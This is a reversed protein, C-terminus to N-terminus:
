PNGRPQLEPSEGEPQLAALIADARKELEEQILQRCVEWPPGGPEGIRTLLKVSAAQLCAILSQRAAALSGGLDAAGLALRRAREAWGHEEAACAVRSKCARRQAARLQLLRRAEHGQRWHDIAPQFHANLEDESM